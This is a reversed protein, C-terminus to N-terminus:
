PRAKLLIAMSDRPVISSRWTFSKAAPKEGHGIEPIKLDYRLLINALLLKILVTAFFRGPCATRGYGWLVWTESVETLQSSPRDNTAAFRSPDFRHPNPFNKPDLWMAQQPVCAWDGPSLRTGDSFEFPSLVKRRCSIADIPNIRVCEKIFSDMLVLGEACTKFNGYALSGSETRLLSCFDPHAALEYLTYSATMSLQPVSSFWVALVEDVARTVTWPQKKPSTDILWQMCDVPENAQKELNARAELRSQVVPALFRHMTRSARHRQTVLSAVFPAIVGPVIKVLEAAAPVLDMYELAANTFEENQAFEPGFFIGNNIITILRKVNPQISFKRYSQDDLECHELQEEITRIMTNDINPIMSPLHATLLNKLTRSFGTSEIGRRDPWEFGHATYTYKPQLIEKAAAHLSLEKGSAQDLQIIHDMSSVPVYHTTETDVVFPM